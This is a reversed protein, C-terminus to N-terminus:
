QPQPQVSQSSRTPTHSVPQVKLSHTSPAPSHSVPQPTMRSHADTPVGAAPEPVLRSHSTVPARPAPKPIPGSSTEPRVHSATQLGGSQKKALGPPMCGSSGPSCGWGTKNGHSWGPPTGGNQNWSAKGHDFGAASRNSAFHTGHARTLTAHHNLHSTHRMTVHHMSAHRFMTHGSSHAFAPHGFSSRHMSAFGGGHSGGFGGGHFGFGGGHFGGGQGASAPLCSAALFAAAITGLTCARITGTHM